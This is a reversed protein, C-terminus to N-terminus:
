RAHGVLKLNLISPNISALEANKPVMNQIPYEIKIIERPRNGIRGIIELAAFM